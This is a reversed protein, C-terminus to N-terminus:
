NINVIAGKATLVGSSEIDMKAGSKVTMSVGADIEVIQAKMIIKMESVISITNEVSDIEIFNNDTKDSIRVRESGTSDDLIIVHGANSHIEVREAQEADNDDLIIEHGSRSRIKRINNKGNENKEPPEDETNWLAGIVYPYNIDGQEFAVLVEDDLEPLFFGGRGKGAMFSMVKTWDSESDDLWPFKVKLRGLGEPDANDTVIGVAVGNVRKTKQQEEQDDSLLDVLNM